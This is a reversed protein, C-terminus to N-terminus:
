PWITMARFAENCNTFTKLGSIADATHPCNSTTCSSSHARLIRFNKYLILIEGAKAICSQKFSTGSCQLCLWYTRTQITLFECHQIVIQICTAMMSSLLHSKHISFPASLNTYSLCYAHLRYLRHHWKLMIEKSNKRRNKDRANAVQRFPKSSQRTQLLTLIRRIPYIEQNAVDSLRCYDVCFRLIKARRLAFVIVTDLKTSTPKIIKGLMM